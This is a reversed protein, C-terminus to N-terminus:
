GGGCVGARAGATVGPLLPCTFSAERQGVQAALTLIHSGVESNAITSVEIGGGANVLSHDCAGTSAVYDIAAQEVALRVAADEMERRIAHAERLASLARALVVAAGM